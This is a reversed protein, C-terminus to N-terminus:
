RLRSGGVGTDANLEPGIHLPEAPGPIADLADPDDADIFLGVEVPPESPDSASDAVDNDADLPLGVEMPVDSLDSAFAAVEDDADLVPGVEVPAGVPEIASVAVDDDADLPLGVEVSAEGSGSTSTPWQPGADIDWEAAPFAGGPHGTVPYPGLADPKADKQVPSREAQEVRGDEAPGTHLPKISAESREDTWPGHTALAYAVALGLGGILVLRPNM